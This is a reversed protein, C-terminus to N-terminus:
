WLFKHQSERSVPAVFIAFMFAESVRIVSDVGLAEVLM